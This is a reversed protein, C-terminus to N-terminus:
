RLLLRWWNAACSTAPWLGDWWKAPTSTSSSPWTSFAKEDTPLYTIDATWLRDPAPAVFNRGVLDPAPIALLPDQRTTTTHKRRRGRM